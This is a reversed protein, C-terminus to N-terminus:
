RSTTKSYPHGLLIALDATRYERISSEYLSECVDATNYDHVLDHCFLPVPSVFHDTENLKKAFNKSNQLLQTNDRNIKPQISLM